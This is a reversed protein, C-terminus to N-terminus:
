RACAGGVRAAQASTPYRILFRTAAARAEDARGTACLALVRAAQREEALRGHPHARAHADLAALAADGDGRALARQAQQILVLEGALDDDAEVRRPRAVAPTAVPAVASTAVPAVTPTVVPTVDPTAVPAVTPTVVAADRVVESARPTAVHAPRPAVQPARRTLAAAAIFVAVGAGVIWRWPPKVPPSTVRAEVASRVRAAAEPPPDHSAHLSALLARSEPSLESM